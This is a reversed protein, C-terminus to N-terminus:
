GAGMTPWKRRLTRMERDGGCRKCLSHKNACDPCLADTATSGFHQVTGCDACPQSTCAAGALTGRVYFCYRCLGEALRKERDRDAQAREATEIMRQVSDAARDTANIMAVVDLRVAPRLSM